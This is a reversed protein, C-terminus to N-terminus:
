QVNSPTLVSFEFVFELKISVYNATSTLVIGPTSFLIDGFYVDPISSTDLRGPAMAMYGNSVARYCSVAVKPSFWFAYEEGPGCTFSKGIATELTNLSMGANGVPTGDPTPVFVVRPNDSSGTSRNYTVTARCGIPRVFNYLSILQTWPSSSSFLASSVTLWGYGATTAATTGSGSLACVTTYMVPKLKLLQAGPGVSSGARAKKLARRRQTRVQKANSSM